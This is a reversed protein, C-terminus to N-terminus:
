KSEKAQHPGSQTKGAMLKTPAEKMMMIAALHEGTTTRYDGAHGALSLLSQCIHHSKQAVSMTAIHFIFHLAAKRSFYHRPYLAETIIMRLWEVEYRCKSQKVKQSLLHSSGIAESM